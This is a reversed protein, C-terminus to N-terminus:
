RAGRINASSTPHPRFVTQRPRMADDWVRAFDDTADVHIRDALAATTTDRSGFTVLHFSGFRRRLTYIEEADGPGVRATLLVLAGGASGRAVRDITEGLARREGDPDGSRDSAPELDALHELIHDAHALGSSTTSVWGDTTALRVLDDRHTSSMVISAAASIAAEFSEETHQGHRIDVLVTTRGHWPLEDQRVLLDDTRASSRWHVRRLDDGVVYPRLAYFDEGTRGIANPHDAGSMPDHGSALPVPAIPDVHPFVTLEVADVTPTSRTILGFPDTISVQLPGVRLVGRRSTPLQYAARTSAGPRLPQVLLNAGRTGSVPDRLGLVPTTRRSRNEVHLDIRSAAGAYVRPPHLERSVSSAPRVFFQYVGAGALLAVVTTGLVALEPIAFLRAATLSLIGTVLLVWGRATLM